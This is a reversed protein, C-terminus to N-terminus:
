GITIGQIKCDLTQAEFQGALTFFLQVPASGNTNDVYIPIVHGSQRASAYDGFNCTLTNSNTGLEFMYTVNSMSYLMQIALTGYFKQGVPIYENFFYTEPNEFRGGEISVSESYDMLDITPVSPITPKNLIQAVGSAADWDANVQVFDTDVAEFELTDYYMPSTSDMTPATTTAWASGTVVSWPYSYAYKSPYSTRYQSAGTNEVVSVTVSDHDSFGTWLQLWVEVKRCYKQGGSGNEMQRLVLVKSVNRYPDNGGVDYAHHHYYSWGGTIYYVNLDQRVQMDVSFRGNENADNDAGTPGSIVFSFSYYKNYNAASDPVLEAVKVYRYSSTTDTAKRLVVLQAQEHIDSSSLAGINARAQAKETDTLGQAMNALVKEIKESAM